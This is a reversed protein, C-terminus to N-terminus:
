KNKAKEDDLKQRARAERVGLYKQNSRELRLRTYAHVEAKPLPALSVADVKNSVPFLVGKFQTASAILEKSSDMKKPKNAKRPFLILKQKYQVLRETNRQLSELSKNRRRHDVAIGITKAQRKNINAAKLEELTFGRGQRLKHNYKITQSYVAPRLSDIPRPALRTAKVLRQSRRREKRAPQNFWTRVREQWHKRFHNNPLQNNHKM